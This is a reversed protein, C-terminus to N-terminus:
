QSIVRHQVKATGATARLTLLVCSVDGMNYTPSFSFQQTYTGAAAIQYRLQGAQTSGSCTGAALMAGSTANCTLGGGANGSFLSLLLTSTSTTASAPSAPCPAGSSIWGTADATDKTLTVGSFEALVIGADTATANVTVTVGGSALTTASVQYRTAYNVSLALSTYSSGLSDSITGVDNYSYRGVVLVNGATVNWTTACSTTATCSVSNVYAIAGYSPALGAFLLLPILKRM